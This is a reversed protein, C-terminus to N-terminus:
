HVHTCAHPMCLLLIRYAGRLILISIISGIVIDPWREEFVMVLIGAIIVGLNAIVDNASFIWSARMHVEGNNHKRILILCIVNAVLAVLGVNILHM